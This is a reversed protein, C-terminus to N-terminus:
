LSALLRIDAAADAGLHFRIVKRGAEALAQGDGLAQALKLTGFSLSAAESGAKDPIAADEGAGATLQVFLGKGGDGKHLQGTSHLFRPGYGLTTALKLRDRLNRRLEALAASTGPAPQLYAQLAVYSGPKAGALFKELEAASAAVAGEAADPLKGGSSFGAVLERARIKASEVNPQDFPNIGLRYGAVATALEWIFIQGGLDYSDKLKLRLVPHGAAELAALAPERATDGNLALDVFLRDAGYVAPAGLPEGVVPVIGRGEKGTSEAILQEAWDGFSRLPDSAFITLKDRGARALEGLIVGLRAAINDGDRPCNCPESNGAAELARDLLLALDLGLLAAPVLGFYSLASYRGGINPNNLFTTRFRYERALEVLSSGPDTVAVFHQGAQERGVAAAVRNYFFKFFSLTEVTGGSKTSVIFLTRAADLGRAAALVAGPDTSDHVSLELHGERTGFTKSFMEPALSSGGMGLLLAKRYGERRLDDAFSNLASLDSRMSLASHLWGLRNSIEAPDPKWVTHDHKWIREVIGAAVAEDLAGAVQATHSGLSERFRRWGEALRGRKEEISALLAEFSASFSALGDEQLKGTVAELDVGAKKLRALLSGAEEEAKENLTVSLTGHDRFANLTAPPMTNVTDAGILEDVYLTDSYLPNKTGTSAWLVRQVRAGREALAQWRPGAFLARFRGYAARANAVAITGSLREDASGALAGDVATDVRSIFFSAVSAVRSVDGGAAALTELGSLYAEVVPEYHTLSFILTVNVNIGESILTHIAAIGETTAPVKIMVNPRKLTRFLRRGEEVTAETERALQPSVELSVYGDLGRTKEYVPRLLDAARAIDELALAEYIDAVSRNESALRVLDRDYDASGAIAKEFITPNSTVGRLGEDILAALEGSELFARRIYDLWVAQGMTALKQIKNM